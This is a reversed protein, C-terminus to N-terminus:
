PRPLIQARHDLRSIRRTMRTSSDGAHRNHRVRQRGPTGRRRSGVVRRAKRLFDMGLLLGCHNEELTIVGNVPEGEVVVSGHALLNSCARGDALEYEASGMLTLTLPFASRMPMLLFGTFGTDIMAEYTQQASEVVGHVAIRLAPHGLDDFYALQVPARAM